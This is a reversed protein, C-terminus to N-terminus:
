QLQFIECTTKNNNKKRQIEALFSKFALLFDEKRCITLTPNFVSNSLYILLIADSFLEYKREDHVGSFDFINIILSPLYTLLFAVFLAIFLITVRMEKKHIELVHKELCRGRQTKIFKRARGVTGGYLCVVVSFTMAVIGWLAYTYYSLLRKKVATSTFYWIQALMVMLTSLIWILIIAKTVRGKTVVQRHILPRSVSFYREFALLTFSFLSTILSFCYFTGFVFEESSIDCFIILIIIPVFLLGNLIDVCAQNFLLINTVKKRLQKKWFFLFAILSNSLIIAVSMLILLSIKICDWDRTLQTKTNESMKDSENMKSSQSMNDSQSMKISQFGAHRLLFFCFCDTRMNLM